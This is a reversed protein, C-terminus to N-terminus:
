ELDLERFIKDVGAKSKLQQLTKDFVDMVYEASSESTDYKRISNYSLMLIKIPEEIEFNNRSISDFNIMEIIKVCERPYDKTCALLYNYLSHLGEEDLKIIYKKIIDIMLPLTNPSLKYFGHLFGERVLKREDDAYHNLIFMSKNESEKENLYRCAQQISECISKPQKEHLELLLTKSNEHGYYWGYLLYIGLPEAADPLTLTNNIFSTVREFDYHIVTNIVRPGIQYVESTVEKTYAQFLEMIQENNFGCGKDIWYLVVLRIQIPLIDAIDLFYNYVDDTYKKNDALRILIKIARTNPTNWGQDFLKTKKEEHANHQYRKKNENFPLEIHNKWFNIIESDVLSNKIFYISLDIFTSLYEAPIKRKMLISYFKRVKKVNFKGEILGELGHIQYRFNIKNEKIIKTILLKYRTPNKKIVEKFSRAHEEISFNHNLSYHFDKKEFKYFTILWQEDTYKQYNEISMLGGLVNAAVVSHNPKKNESQWGLFKRNFMYLRTRLINNKKVHEFPISKLILWQDHGLYPYYPLLNGYKKGRDRWTSDRVFDRKTFYQTVFNQFQNKQESSFLAYTNHILERYYYKLEEIFFIDSVIEKNVMIPFVDALYKGPNAMIVQFAIFYLTASKSSLFDLIEDKLFNPQKNDETILYDLLWDLIKHFEYVDPQFNQFAYDEKLFDYEKFYSDFKNREIFSTVIHKLFPYAKEPQKKYLKQCFDILNSEDSNYGLERKRLRKWDKLISKFVKQSETTAFEPNSDIANSLIHFRRENNSLYEKELEFYTKTVVPLSFDGGRYLLWLLYSAKTKSAQIGNLISIAEEINKEASFVVYRGITEKLLKDENNLCSNLFIRNKSFYCFWNEEPDSQFFSIFLSNYRQLLSVVLKFESLTPAEEYSLQEVILLKLHYRIKNSNIIDNVQQIYSDPNYLRLFTLVQKIVSRLFLGQHKERLLFQFINGGKLEVFCRAFVYDFFSQHFFQIYNNSEILLSESNLYSIEKLHKDFLVSPVSLNEQRKYIEDALQFLINILIQSNIDTNRPQLIKLKWLYRYLDQLSKIENLSISKYYIRCFIDLHLPTKLLEKLDQPLSFNKDNTLLTIVSSVEQESLLSAKIIKKNSFQKLDADHNLDFTRCSIIIRVNKLQSLSNVISFYTSIQERNTSLSRSLADIQDILVVVIKHKAAVQEFIKYFDEHLGLISKGLHLLDITKQDSKLGLTPIDQKTLM